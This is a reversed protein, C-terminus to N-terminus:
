SWLKVHVESNSWKCKVAVEFCCWMCYHLVHSTTTNNLSAFTFYLHLAHSTALLSSYLAHLATIFYMHLQYPTSHLLLLACTFHMHHQQSATSFNLIYSYLLLWSSWKWFGVAAWLFIEKCTKFRWEVDCCWWKYKVIAICCCWLWKEQIESNSWETECCSWLYKVTAESANILLRLAANSTSWNCKMTAERASWLLKM